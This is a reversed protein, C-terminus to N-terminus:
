RIIIHCHSSLDITKNGAHALGRVKIKRNEMRTKRPRSVQMHIWAEM